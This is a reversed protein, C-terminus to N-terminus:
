VSSPGSAPAVGYAAVMSSESSAQGAGGQGDGGDETEVDGDCGVSTSFPMAVATLGLLIAAATRPLTGDPRRMTAGCHPCESDASKVHCGCAPCAQLFAPPAM